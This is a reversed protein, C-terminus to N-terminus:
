LQIMTREAYYLPSVRVLSAFSAAALGECIEPPPQSDVDCNRCEDKGGDVCPAQPVLMPLVLRMLRREVLLCLVRVHVDPCLVEKPTVSILHTAALYVRDIVTVSRPELREEPVVLDVIM